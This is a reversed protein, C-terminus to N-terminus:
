YGPGSAPALACKRRRVRLFPDPSAEERRVQRVPEPERHPLAMQHRTGRQGCLPRADKKRFRGSFVPGPNEDRGGEPLLARTEARGLERTPPVKCSKSASAAQIHQNYIALISLFSLEKELKLDLFVFCFTKKNTEEHRTGSTRETMGEAMFEKIQQSM